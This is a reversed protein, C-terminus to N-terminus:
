PFASHSIFSVCNPAFVSSLFSSNDSVIERGRKPPTIAKISSTIQTAPITPIQSYWFTRLTLMKCPRSVVLTHGHLNQLAPAAGRQAPTVRTFARTNKSATPSEEFPLHVTTLERSSAEDM